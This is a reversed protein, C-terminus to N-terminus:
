AAARARLMTVMSAMIAGAGLTFYIPWGPGDLAVSIFGATLFAIASGLLLWTVAWRVAGPFRGPVPAGHPHGGETPVHSAHLV